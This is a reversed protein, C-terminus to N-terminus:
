CEQAPIRGARVFFLRVALQGIRGERQAPDRLGQLIGIADVRLCWESLADEAKRTPTASSLFPHSEPSYVLVDREPTDEVVEVVGDVIFPEPHESTGRRRVPCDLRRALDVTLVVRIAVGSAGEILPQGGRARVSALALQSECEKSEPVHD